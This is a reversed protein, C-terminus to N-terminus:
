SYWYVLYQHIRTFSIEPYVAHVIQEAKLYFPTYWDTEANPHQPVERIGKNTVFDKTFALCEARTAFYWGKKPDTQINPASQYDTKFDDYKFFLGTAPTFKDGYEHMRESLYFWSVEVEGRNEDFCITTGNNLTSFTTAAVWDMPDDYRSTPMLGFFARTSYGDVNQPYIIKDMVSEVIDRPEAMLNLNPLTREDNFYEDAQPRLEPFESWTKYKTAIFETRQVLYQKVYAELKRRIKAETFAKIEEPTLLVGFGAGANVNTSM